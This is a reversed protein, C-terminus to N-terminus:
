VKGGTRRREERAEEGKEDKIQPLHSLERISPKPEQGVAKQLCGEEFAMLEWIM